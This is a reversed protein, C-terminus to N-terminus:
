RVTHATIQFHSILSRGSEITPPTAELIGFLYIIRDLLVCDTIIYDFGKIPPQHHVM